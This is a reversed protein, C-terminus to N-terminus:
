LGNVVFGLEWGKFVLKHRGELRGQVVVLGVCVSQASTGVVRPGSSHRTPLHLVLRVPLFSSLVVLCGLPGSVGPSLLLLVDGLRCLQKGFFVQTQLRLYLNELIFEVVEVGNEEVM